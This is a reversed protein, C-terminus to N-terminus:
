RPEGTGPVLPPRRLLQHHWCYGNAHPQNVCNRWGDPERIVEGGAGFLIGRVMVRCHGPKARERHPRYTARPSM